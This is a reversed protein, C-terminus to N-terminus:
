LECLTVAKIVRPSARSVLFRPAVGPRVLWKGCELEPMDGFEDILNVSM